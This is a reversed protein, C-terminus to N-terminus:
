SYLAHRLSIGTRRFGDMAKQLPRYVAEFEPTLSQFQFDITPLSGRCSQLYQCLGDNLCAELWGLEFNKKLGRPMKYTYYDEPALVVLHIAKAALLNGKGSQRGYLRRVRSYLYVLGYQLIEMAAFLPTDSGHDQTATGYKLEIIEFEHDALRHALDIRRSFEKREALSNCVSIQNVLDDGMVQVLTKELVKEESTHEFDIEPSKVWQWNSASPVPNGMVKHNEEIRSLIGAILNSASAQEPRVAHATNESLDILAQKSHLPENGYRPNGSIGLWEAIIPDVGNFISRHRKVTM